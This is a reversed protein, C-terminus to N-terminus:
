SIGVAQLHMTAKTLPSKRICMEIEHCDGVAEHMNGDTWRGSQKSKERQNGAFMNSGASNLKCRAATLRTSYANVCVENM